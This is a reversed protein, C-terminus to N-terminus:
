RTTQVAYLLIVQSVTLSVTICNPTVADCIKNQSFVCCLPFDTLLWSLLFLLNLMNFIKHKFYMQSNMGFLPTSM